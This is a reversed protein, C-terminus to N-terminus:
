TFIKVSSTGMIFVFYEFNGMLHKDVIHCTQLHSSVTISSSTKILGLKNIYNVLQTRPDSAKESFMKLLAIGFMVFM